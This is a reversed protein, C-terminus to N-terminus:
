VLESVCSNGRQCKIPVMWIQVCIPHNKSAVTDKLTFIPHISHMQLSKPSIKPSNHTSWCKISSNLLSQEHKGYGWIQIIFNLAEKFGTKVPMFIFIGWKEQEDSIGRLTISLNIQCFNWSQNPFFVGSLRAHWNGTLHVRKVLWKAVFLFERFIGYIIYCHSPFQICWVTVFYRLIYKFMM